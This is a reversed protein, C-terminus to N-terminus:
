TAAIATGITTGGGPRNDVVIPQSFTGGLKQAILRAITDTGGGPAFPVILRVARSPYEQQANSTSTSAALLLISLLSIRLVIAPIDLTVSRTLAIAFVSRM